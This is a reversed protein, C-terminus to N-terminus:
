AALTYRGALERRSASVEAAKGFSPTMVERVRSGSQQRTRFKHTSPHLRRREDYGGRFILVDGPNLTVHASSARVHTAGSVSRGFLLIEDFKRMESRSRLRTLDVDAVGATNMHINLGCMAREKESDSPHDFHEYTDPASRGSPEYDTINTALVDPDDASAQVVLDILGRVNGPMIRQGAMPFAYRLRHIDTGADVKVEQWNEENPDYFNKLHVALPENGDDCILTIDPPSGDANRLAAAGLTATIRCIELSEPSHVSPLHDPLYLM